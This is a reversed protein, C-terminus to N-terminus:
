SQPPRPPLRVALTTGGDGSSISIHGGHRETVIRRSIDLGLGTGKGVDKTTFFPEFAHAQVDPQMGTGTDTIRVEVGDGEASTSITLTGVGDMADIANDVLNTWVQNLEGAIAEITPVDPAYERVVEVGGRMKHALMTLTSDLGETVDVSQVSGRDLQSYSRVAAVLGSIRGTSVKVESLLTSTSVSASVWQLGPELSEPDLVAAVRRCWAVDAGAAALAPALDWGRAVGAKVMWESLAEERDALELPGPTTTSGALTRRLDNLASFQAATIHQEALRTLSDLTSTSASELADVARTAASAPNNIEHALGAALTGLAVLAERQRAVSEINRATHILGKMLHVGLPFWEDACARLADAGVSLVRGPSGARGTALYVGHEDWAQFGGAWQGPSQMAGLVTEEPGVRRVLTIAGELLVFWVDAPRGERFLEEGTSFPVVESVSVLQDLQADTLGDFLSLARLEAATM